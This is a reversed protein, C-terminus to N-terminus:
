RFNRHPGSTGTTRSDSGFPCIERTRNLPGRKGLTEGVKSTMKALEEVREGGNNVKLLKGEERRGGMIRADKKPIQSLLDLDVLGVM